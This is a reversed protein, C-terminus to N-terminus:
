HHESFIRLFGVTSSARGQNKTCGSKLPWRKLHIGDAPSPCRGWSRPAALRHLPPLHRLRHPACGRHLSCRVTFLSSTSFEHSEFAELNNHEFKNPEVACVRTNLATTSTDTPWGVDRLRSNPIPQRSSGTATFKQHCRSLKLNYIRRQKVFTVPLFSEWSCAYRLLAMEKGLLGKDHWVTQLCQWVPDGVAFLRRNPPSCYARSMGQSNAKNTIYEQGWRNYKTIQSTTKFM